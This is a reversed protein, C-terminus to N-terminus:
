ASEGDKSVFLMGNAVSWVPELTQVSYGLGLISPGHERWELVKRKFASVPFGAPVRNDWCRAEPPDIHFIHLRADFDDAIAALDVAIGPTTISEDILVDRGEYLAARAMLCAAANVVPETSAHYEHGLARRLSDFCIVQADSQMIAGFEYDDGKYAPNCVHRVFLSKGAGPLGLVWFMTLKDSMVVGGRSSQPWHIIGM